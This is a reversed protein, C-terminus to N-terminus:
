RAVAAGTIRDLEANLMPIICREFTPRLWPRAPVRVSDKLAFLLEGKQMGKRAGSRYRGAGINVGEVYEEKPLFAVMNGNRSRFIRLARKGTGTLISMAAKPTLKPLGDPRRNKGIPIWLKGNKATITRGEEHTQAYTTDYSGFEGDVKFQSVDLRFKVSQKLHKTRTGLRTATTGGTLFNQTAYRVGQGLVMKMARRTGALVDQPMKALRARLEPLGVITLTVTNSM